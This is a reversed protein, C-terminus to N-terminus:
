YGSILESLMPLLFIFALLVVTILLAIKFESGLNFSMTKKKHKNDISVNSKKKSNDNKNANNGTNYNPMSSYNNNVMTNINTNSNGVQINNNNAAMNNSPINTAANQININMTDNINVNPNGIVTNLNGSAKYPRINGDNYNNNENM